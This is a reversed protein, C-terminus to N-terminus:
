AKTKPKAQNLAFPTGGFITIDEDNISTKSKAKTNVNPKHQSLAFPTGGFITIDEDDITTEANSRYTDDYVDDDIDDAM